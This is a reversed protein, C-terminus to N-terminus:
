TNVRRDVETLWRGASDALLSSLGFAAAAAVNKEQDDVLLVTAPDRVHALIPSFAASEPKLAGLADSVLIRSLWRGLGLRETWETRHNTLLWIPVSAAWIPLRPVAAGPGYAAELCAEYGTGDGGSL